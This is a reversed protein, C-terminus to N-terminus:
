KKARQMGANTQLWTLFNQKVTAHLDSISEVKGGKETLGDCVENISAFVVDLPIGQKEWEAITTFDMPGMITVNPCRALFLEAVDVVYNM